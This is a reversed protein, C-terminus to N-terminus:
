VMKKDDEQVYKIRLNREVKVAMTDDISACLISSGLFGTISLLLEFTFTHQLM